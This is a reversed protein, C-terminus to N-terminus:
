DLVIDIVPLPQAPQGGGGGGGSSSGAGAFPKGFFPLYGHQYTGPPASGRVYSFTGTSVRPPSVLPEYPMPEQPEIEITAEEYPPLEERPDKPHLDNWLFRTNREAEYQLIDDSPLGRQKKMFYNNGAQTERWTMDFPLENAFCEYISCYDAQGTEEGRVKQSHNSESDSPLNNGLVQELPIVHPDSQHTEGVVTGQPFQSPPPDPSPNRSEYLSPHSSGTITEFNMLLSVLQPHHLTTGTLGPIMPPVQPSLDPTVAWVSDGMYTATDSPEPSSITIIPTRERPTAPARRELIVPSTLEPAIEEEEWIGSRAFNDIPILRWPVPTFIRPPLQELLIANVDDAPNNPPTIVTPAANPAELGQLPRYHFRVTLILAVSLFTASPIGLAIALIRADDNEM